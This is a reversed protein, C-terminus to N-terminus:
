PRHPGKYDTCISAPRTVQYGYFDSGVDCYLGKMGAPDRLLHECNSCAGGAAQIPTTIFLYVARDRLSRRRRQRIKGRQIRAAAAWETPFIQQALWNQNELSIQTMADEFTPPASVSADAGPELKGRM